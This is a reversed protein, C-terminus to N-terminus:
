TARRCSARPASRCRARLEPAALKAPDNETTPVNNEAFEKDFTASPRLDTLWYSMAYDALSDDVATAGERYRHPWPDGPKHILSIDEPLTPIVSGDLNGVTVSPKAPQNTYGDTFM